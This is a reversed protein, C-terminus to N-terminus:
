GNAAKRNQFKNFINKTGIPLFSILLLIVVIQPEVAERLTTTDGLQSGAYSYVLVGPIIGLLTATFYRRVHIDTAGSAFNLAYFPLVASMRATLLYWWGSREIGRNLKDISKQFKRKIFDRLIFRSLYFPVLSGISAAVVVVPATVQWGMIAGGSLTFITAVPMTTAAILIYLVAYILIFQLRNSNYNAVLDERFQQFKELSIYENGDFLYFAALLIFFLIVLALRVTNKHSM